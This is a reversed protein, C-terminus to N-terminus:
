TPQTPISALFCALSRLEDIPLPAASREAVASLQLSILIGGVLGLSVLGVKSLKSRM